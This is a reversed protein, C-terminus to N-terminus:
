WIAIQGAAAKPHSLLGQEEAYTFLGGLAGIQAVTEAPWASPWFNIQGNFVAERCASYTGSPPFQQVHTDAVFSTNIGFCTTGPHTCLNVMGIQSPGYCGCSVGTGGCVTSQAAPAPYIDPVSSFGGQNQAQGSSSGLLLGAFALAVKKM